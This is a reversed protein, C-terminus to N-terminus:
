DHEVISIKGKVPLIDDISMFSSAGVSAKISSSLDHEEITNLLRSRARLQFFTTLQWSHPLESQLKSPPPSFFSSSCNGPKVSHGAHVGPQLLVIFAGFCGGSSIM